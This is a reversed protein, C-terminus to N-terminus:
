LARIGTAVIVTDCDLTKESQLAIGSVRPEGHLSQIGDGLIVSIGLQKIQEELLRSADIDLQQAMLRDAYEILTVQTNLRQMARASELGLLGDGIVVTHHSRVRRAFLQNADDMNRLTFVGDTNIGKIPPVYASSGTALILKSYETKVGQSDKIVRQDTDISTVRYGIREEYRTGFPRKLPQLLENWRIDGALWSSLKIRNYPLCPEEGYVIVPIIQGTNPQQRSQIQASESKLVV